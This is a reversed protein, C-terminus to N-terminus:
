ASAILFLEGSAPQLGDTRDSFYLHRIHDTTMIQTYPFGATQALSLVEEPTFFSVFPTGAERAGKEAIEQMPQDEILLSRAVVSARLRKTYKMDPREQWGKEPGVLQLGIHDELIHPSADEQIHLARWLATRVATNDPLPTPHNEM